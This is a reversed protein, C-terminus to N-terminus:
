ELLMVIGRALTGEEERIRQRKEGEGARRLKIFSPPKKWPGVPDELFGVLLVSHAGFFDDGDEL